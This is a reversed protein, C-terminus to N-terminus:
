KKIKHGSKHKCIVDFILKEDKVISSDPFKLWMGFNLNKSKIARLSCVQTLLSIRVVFDGKIFTENKRTKTSFVLFYSEGFVLIWINKNIIYYFDNIHQIISILYKHVLRKIKPRRFEEEALQKSSFGFRWWM